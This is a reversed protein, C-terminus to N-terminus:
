RGGGGWQWMGARLDVYSNVENVRRQSPTGM